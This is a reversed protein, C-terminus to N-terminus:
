AEIREFTINGMLAAVQPFGSNAYIEKCGISYVHSSQSIMYFDLITKGLTDINDRNNDMGIHGIKDIDLVVVDLDGLSSLFKKSDSFVVTKQSNSAMIKKIALKCKNILIEQSKSDLSNNYDKEFSELANVFRLHIAVYEGKVLGTSNIYDNLLDSKKFLKNYEEYWLDGNDFKYPSVNGLYNRCHYQTNNKKLKPSFKSDVYLRWIRTYKFSYELDIFKAQWDLDIESPILYKNLGDWIIYFKLGAQKALHFAYVVAKIRDAFGPQPIEPDIIFYFANKNKVNVFLHYKKIQRINRIFDRCKSYTYPSIRIKNVLLKRFLNM